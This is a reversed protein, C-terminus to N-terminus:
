FVFKCRTFCIYQRILGRLNSKSESCILESNMAYLIVYM